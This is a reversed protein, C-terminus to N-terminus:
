LPLALWQGQSALAPGALQRLESQGSSVRVVEALALHELSRPDLLRSPVWGPQIVLVRDGPRLGSGAGALLTLSAGHGRRVDFQIPECRLANQVQAMWQAMHRMLTREVAEFAQAPHANAKEADVRIVFEQEWGSDAGGQLPALRVRVVWQWPSPPFYLPGNIESYRPLLAHSRGPPGPLLTIDAAWGSREQQVPSLLARTYSNGVPPTWDTAVWRDSQSVLTDLGRRVAQLLALGGAQQDGPLGSALTTTMSLPARWPRPPPECQGQANQRGQTRWSWPLVEASVRAQPEPQGDSVYSLVRVGRVQAQTHFEHAERLTGSEDIWASSFVQMPQDMTAELLAQRIAQLQQEHTLGSPVPAPARSVKAPESPRAAVQAAVQAAAPTGFAALLALTALLRVPFRDAVRM